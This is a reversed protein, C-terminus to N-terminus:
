PAREPLVATFVAGNESAVRLDGGYRSIVQRVLALGLGRGHPGSTPKTSWGRAFAAELHAADLGAGSDAVRIRLQGDESRASVTVRRPPPAALAAEVANDVLNGVLTVLDRPDLGVEGVEGVATDPDVVLEVGKEHAQAAKGLLLAALAPEEVASTLRDALEQTSALDETAFAVAQEARGLEIMTVVTHLRNAAEHAQARLADAFGRVSDLEGTLAQLETHDRLTTVTGLAWGAKEAPAQNVVLVRDGYVYLQDQAPAGSALLGALPEALGLARVPQGESGAPLGLLRVAEDNALVLAGQRDVVLLGERVAHLVADHHKYMRTIETPGLGLTQRRLRRSIALTGAAAMGLAALSVAALTPLRRRLEQGLKEHLVGVSVLAVVQGGPSAIPVVARVSSGLTGTYTETLPAGTLAPEITGIFHEGIRAPTPHSYRTRDTAMFVVFDVDAAHRVSEAIPQLTASPDAGALAAHVEPLQALGSALALVRRSTSDESTQRIEQVALLTGALVLVVIVALQLAFVQQALSLRRRRPNMRAAWGIKPVEM